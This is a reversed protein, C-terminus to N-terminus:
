KRQSDTEESWEMEAETDSDKIEWVGKMQKEGRESGRGEKM